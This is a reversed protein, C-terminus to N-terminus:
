RHGKVYWKANNIRYELREKFTSMLGLEFLDNDSRKKNKNILKRQQFIKNLIKENKIDRLFWYFGRMIAISGKLDRMLIFFIIKPIHVFFISEILYIFVNKLEYNKLIFYFMSKVWIATAFYNIDKFTGYRKHIMVASPVYLLKYGYQWARLGLEVEEGGGFYYEDFGGIDLFFKREVIVGACCGYGTYKQVSYKEDDTDYIGEYLNMEYTFKGGAYDIVNKGDIKYPKLMKCGASIVDKESLVGRVLNKLWEKDVITDNNLFVLYEGNANQAALNNGKCFGYNKDLEFIKVFPFKKKIYEVSDDSSANDAIIVEYKEKPYNLKELSEFCEKLYKQGNWNVIIVSVFPLEEKNIQKKVNNVM